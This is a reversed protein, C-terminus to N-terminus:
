FKLRSNSRDLPFASVFQPASVSPFAMWLSGWTPIWGVHLSWIWVSNNIGLFAQQCSGSITIEKSASGSGSWCLHPYECGVMPSLVPVSGLLPSLPLASPTSPTKDPMLQLPPEQDKSPKISWHLPTSHCHPLLPYCLTPAGGYFCPLPLHSLPNASHFGPFPVVNLYFLYIFLYIGL